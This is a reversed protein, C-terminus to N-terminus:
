TFLICSVPSQSYRNGRGKGRDGGGGGRYHQYGPSSSMSLSGSGAASSMPPPLGGSLRGDDGSDRSTNWLSQGSRDETGPTSAIWSPFGGASPRNYHTESTEPSSWDAGGSSFHHSPTSTVGGPSHFHSPPGRTFIFSLLRLNNACVSLLFCTMQGFKGNGGWVVIVSYPWM